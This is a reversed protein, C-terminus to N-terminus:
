LNKNKSGFRSNENKMELNSANGSFSNGGDGELIKDITHDTTLSKQQFTESIGHEGMRQDLTNVLRWSFDSQRPSYPFM